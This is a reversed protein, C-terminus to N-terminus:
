FIDKLLKLFDRDNYHHRLQQLGIFLSYDRGSRNKAKVADMGSARHLENLYEIRRRDLRDQFRRVMPDYLAWARIALEIRSSLQFTLKTLRKLRERPDGTDSIVDIVEQTSIKEYYDLLNKIYQERNKFHHYFSGKTKGTQQTLTDISLMGPGKGEIIKLGEEFWTNKTDKRSSMEM